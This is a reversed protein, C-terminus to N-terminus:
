HLSPRSSLTSYAWLESPILLLTLTWLIQFSVRRLHCGESWLLNSPLLHWAWLELRRLCAILYITIFRQFLPVLFGRLIITATHLPLKLISFRLDGSHSVAVCRELAPILGAYTQDPKLGHSTSESSFGLVCTREYISSMVQMLTMFSNCSAHLAKLGM